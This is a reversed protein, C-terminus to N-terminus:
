FNDKWNSRPLKTRSKAFDRIRKAVSRKDTPLSFNVFLDACELFDALRLLRNNYMKLKSIAM